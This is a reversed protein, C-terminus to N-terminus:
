AIRKAIKKKIIRKVIYNLLITLSLVLICLISANAQSLDADNPAGTNPTVYLVSTSHDYESDDNINTEKQWIILPDGVLASTDNAGEANDISFIILDSNDRYNPDTIQFKLTAITEKGLIGNVSSAIIRNNAIDCQSFTNACSMETPKLIQDSYSFDAILGLLSFNSKIVLDIEFSNDADISDNALVPDIFFMNNVLASTRYTSVLVIYTATILLFAMMKFKNM